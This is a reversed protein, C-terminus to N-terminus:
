WATRRVSAILQCFQDAMDEFTGMPPPRGFASGPQTVKTAHLGQLGSIVRLRQMSHASYYLLNTDLGRVPDMFICDFSKDNGWSQQWLDVRRIPGHNCFGMWFPLVGTVSFVLGQRVDLAFGHHQKALM